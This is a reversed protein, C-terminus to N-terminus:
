RMASSRGPRRHRALVPAAAFRSLAQGFAPLRSLSAARSLGACAGCGGGAETEEGVRGGNLVSGNLTAIANAAEEATAFCAVGTGKGNGEFVEVWKACAPKMHEHLEKYTVCDPIGGVWAKKELAFSRHGKGKGKGYGGGKWSAPQWVWMGDGKGKGGWGM